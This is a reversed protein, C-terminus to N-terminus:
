AVQKKSIIKKIKAITEPSGSGIYRIRDITGRVVELKEAADELTPQSNVWSIFQRHEKETLKESKRVRKGKTAM